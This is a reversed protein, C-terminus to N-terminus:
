EDELSDDHSPWLSTESPHVHHRGEPTTLTYPVTGTVAAVHQEAAATAPAHGGWSYIVAWSCRCSGVTPEQQDPYPLDVWHVPTGATAGDDGSGAGSPELPSTM